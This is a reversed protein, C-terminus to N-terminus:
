TDGKKHILITCASKWEQPVEGSLWVAPIIEHLIIFNISLIIIVLLLFTILGSIECVCHPKTGSAPVLFAIKM